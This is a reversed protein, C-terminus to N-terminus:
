RKVVRLFTHNGIKGNPACAKEFQNSNAWYPQVKKHAYFHTSGCTNDKFKNLMTAAAIVISKKWSKINTNHKKNNYTLPIKDSKGDLTWSFMPVYKGTTRSKRKEWVVDCYTNPFRISYVRNKTVNSVAFQGMTTEGSSEHYINQALCHLQERDINQTEYDHNVNLNALVSIVLSIESIKDIM